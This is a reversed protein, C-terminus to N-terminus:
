IELVTWRILKILWVKIGRWRTYSKTNRFIDFYENLTSLITILINRNIYCTILSNIPVFSIILSRLQHKELSNVAASSTHFNLSSPYFQSRCRMPKQPQWPWVAFCRSLFLEVLTMEPPLRVFVHANVVTASARERGGQQVNYIFSASTFDSIVLVWRCRCKM